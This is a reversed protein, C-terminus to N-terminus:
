VTATSLAELDEHGKGILDEALWVDGPDIEGAEGDSATVHVASALCILAQKKPTPHVPENRLTYM